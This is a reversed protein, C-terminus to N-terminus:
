FYGCLCYFFFFFCLGSVMVKFPTCSNANDSSSFTGPGCAACQRNSTLTANASIVQGATCTTAAACQRNATLTPVATQFTVGLVCASVNTCVAANTSSSFSSGSSCAGCARNSSTTAQTTVFQGPQCVTAPACTSADTTNSFNLLATCAGCQRNSSSTGTTTVFQGLPCSAWSQCSNANAVPSFTQPDCDLCVRDNASTGAALMYQGPACPTMPSCAVANVSDSYNTVGNCGACKVDSTLTGNASIYQGAICSSWTSCNASNNVATFDGPNCNNCFRDTSTTGASLVFEGPVCDTKNTCTASNIATSMTGAPCAACQRDVTTTLPASQFMGAPCDRYTTSCAAAAGLSFSGSACDFCASRNATADMFKGAPCAACAHPSRSSEYYGFNCCGGAVLGTCNPTWETGTVLLNDFYTGEDLSSSYSQAALAFTSPATPLTVTFALNVGAHLDHQEYRQLLAPTAGNVIAFFQNFDQGMDFPGTTRAYLAVNLSQFRSLNTLTPTQFTWGTFTDVNSNVVLESRTGSAFLMNSTNAVVRFQRGFPASLANKFWFFSDPTAPAVTWDVGTLVVSKVLTTNPLAVWAAGANLQGTFDEGYVCDYYLELQVGFGGVFNQLRVITANVPLPLM